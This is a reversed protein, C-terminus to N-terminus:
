VSDLPNRMSPVMMSRSPRGWVQTNHADGQAVAIGSGVPCRHGSREARVMADLRSREVKDFMDVWSIWSGARFSVGYFQKM